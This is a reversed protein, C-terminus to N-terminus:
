GAHVRKYEAHRNSDQWVTRPRMQELQILAKGGTGENSVHAVRCAVPCRDSEDVPQLSRVFVVSGERVPYRLRVEKEDCLGLDLVTREVFFDDQEDWGSVEVSYGSGNLFDM